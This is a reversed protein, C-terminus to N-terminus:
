RAPTVAGAGGICYLHTDTRLYIAGDVVASTGFIQGDLQNEALKTMQKNAELVVCKGDQAFTYIRGEACIPSAMHMGGVRQRGLPQGTLADLCVMMGEDSLVFLEKGVLLPSPVMPIQATVKWAVHTRTVDGQGDVRIALLHPRGGNNGTCIYVMGNGYLPRPAGSFGTGDDVRWIERGTQPEYSVIWQSGPIVMQERGAAPFVLPTSFFKRMPGSKMRIDPRNTKWAQQGTKKDLAAVYQQDTGDRVLVLLDQYIIPSSGPGVMHDLPLRCKWIVKGDATDVCATGFTGFDCYLRDKEVVPTPTAYSNLWHVAVPKDIPFLETHWLLKGTARDLCVAGVQVRDAQQMDDPGANFRRTKGEVATTLYIRDGLIVPSSRGRGPPATKWRINETESWKLPVNKATAIGDGTPGRFQPWNDASALGGAGTTMLYFLVLARM